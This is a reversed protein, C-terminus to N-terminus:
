PASLAESLFTLSSIPNTVLSRSLRTLLAPLVWISRRPPFAPLFACCVTKSLYLAAFLKTLSFIRLPPSMAKISLTILDPSCSAVPARRKTRPPELSPASRKSFIRLCNVGSSNLTRDPYMSPFIPIGLAPDAPTESIPSCARLSPASAIVSAPNEGFVKIRLQFLREFSDLSARKPPVSYLSRAGASSLRTKVTSLTPFDALSMAFGEPVALNNPAIPVNPGMAAALPAPMAPSPNSYPNAPKIAGYADAFSIVFLANTLQSASPTSFAAYLGCDKPWCM